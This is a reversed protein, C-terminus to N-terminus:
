RMTLEFPISLKLPPADLDCPALLADTGVVIRWHGPPLHLAPDAGWAKYFALNPDSGDASWSKGPPVAVPRGQDFDYVRCDSTMVGIISRRQGGVERYQFTVIGSGSAWLQTRAAPGIWTLGAQLPIADASDLTASPLRVELAFGSGEARLDLAQGDASPAPQVSGCAVVLVAATALGALGRRM